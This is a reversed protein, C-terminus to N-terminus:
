LLRELWDKVFSRAVHALVASGMGAATAEDMARRYEPDRALEAGAARIVTERDLVAALRAHRAEFVEWEMGVAERVLERTDSTKIIATSM